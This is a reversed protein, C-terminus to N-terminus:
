GEVGLVARVREVLPASEWALIASSPFTAGHDHAFQAAANSRRESTITKWLVFFDTESLTPEFSDKGKMERVTRPLLEWAQADLDANSPM